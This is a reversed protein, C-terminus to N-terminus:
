RSDAAKRGSISYWSYTQTRWTWWHSATDSELFSSSSSSDPHQYTKRAWMKTGLSRYSDWISIARSAFCRWTSCSYPRLALWSLIIAAYIVLNAQLWLSWLYYLCDIMTTCISMQPHLHHNLGHGIGCWSARWVCHMVVDHSGWRAMIRILHTM